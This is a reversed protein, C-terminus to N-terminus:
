GQSGACRRASRSHLDQSVRPGRDAIENRLLRFKPASINGLAMDIWGDHDFDLTAFARSDGPDDLGSIGSLRQFQHDPLGGFFLHNREHGSWSAGTALMRFTGDVMDVTKSWKGQSTVRTNDNTDRVVTRWFM